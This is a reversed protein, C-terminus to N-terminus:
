FYQIEEELDIKYKHKIKAKILSILNIVDKAKAKDANIIFNAHKKSVKAGGVTKGKFGLQDILYGVGIKGGRVLGKAALDEALKRNQKIIKKYELNKFICGASPEKPNFKFRHDFNKQSLAKIEESSGKALKLKVQVILLNKRKKFISHRYSFGCAQNNLKIFKKKVLDYAEVEAVASSMDLGYAGANGRVAGGISGPLGFSWELGSLGNVASIKSLKTVSTGAWSTIYNKKIAYYEGSIKLVLGKIKKRVVLINSGGALVTLPLKKEKAWEIAKILEEKNRATIFFEAQGGIRFTMLPTLDFNKKILKEIPM